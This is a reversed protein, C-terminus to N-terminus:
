PSIEGAPVAGFGRAHWAVLDVVSHRWYAWSHTGPELVLEVELGAKRALATFKEGADDLDYKDERGCRVLLQPRAERTHWDRDLLAVLNNAQLNNASESRGFIRKLNLRLPWPTTRVLGWEFPILAGSLSGASQYLEPHKLALRAAAYGGMSIGAVARGARDRRVAWRSEVAERLSGVVWSEYRRRGDYFDAFYSKHGDPAVIVAPPMEGARMRRSIERAAGQRWLIGSDAFFDHLFYLVPYPAAEPYGPPLLVRFTGRATGLPAAPDVQRPPTGRGAGLLLILSVLALAGQKM